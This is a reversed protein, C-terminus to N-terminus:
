GHGLRPGHVGAGRDGERYRDPHLSQGGQELNDTSRRCPSSTLIQMYPSVVTDPGGADHIKSKKM